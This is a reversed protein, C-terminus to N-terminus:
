DVIWHSRPRLFGEVRYQQSSRNFRPLVRTAVILGRECLGPGPAAHTARAVAPVVRDHLAEKMRELRFANAVTVVARAGVGVRIHVVVNFPEVISHSSM